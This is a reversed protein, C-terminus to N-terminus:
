RYQERTLNNMWKGSRFRRATLILKFIEEMGVLLYVVPLSLHFHLGALLAAPVGILWVGILEVIFSFSTDGGSRLIGVIMHLNFAKFPILFGIAILTIRVLSITAQDMRLIMVIFPASASMLIGLIIGMFVGQILFYRAFRGAEERKEEGIKKGIMVAATTSTGMLVVFFLGQISETINAAAIVDTGMRAFVIKYVVMGLSWAIENMLVPGATIIFKKVM